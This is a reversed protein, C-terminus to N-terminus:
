RADLASEFVLSRKGFRIRAGPEVRVPRSTVQVEPDNGVAIRTGNASGLDVVNVNWGDLTLALHARSVTGSDDNVVISRSRSQQVSEARGPERGLVYDADLTFTTGDDLVVIGLPPRPGEVLTLTQQSLSLGCSGCFQRRPDNFHDRRCMVGQVFVPGGAHEHQEDTADDPVSDPPEEGGDHEDADTPDLSFIEVGALPDDTIPPMRDVHTEDDQAAPPAPTLGSAPAVAGVASGAVVLGGGSVIGRDLTLLPDPPLAPSTAGTALAISLVEATVWRDVWSVAGASSITESADATTIVACADGHVLVAWGTPSGAAVALTPATAAPTGALLGAITRIVDRADAQGAQCLEVVRAAAERDANEGLAILVSGFRAVIGPGGLPRATPTM